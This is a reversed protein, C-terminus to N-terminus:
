EDFHWRRPSHLPHLCCLVNGLLVPFVCGKCELTGVVCHILHVVADDERGKLGEEVPKLIDELIDLLATAITAGDKKALPQLETLWETRGLGVRTSTPLHSFDLIFILLM